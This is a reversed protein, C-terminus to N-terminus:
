EVNYKVIFFRNDLVYPINEYSTRLTMNKFSFYITNSEKSFLNPTTEKALNYHKKADPYTFLKKLQEKWWPEDLLHSRQQHYVAMVNLGMDLYNDGEFIQRFGLAPNYFIEPITKGTINKYDLQNQSCIIKFGDSFELIESRVNLLYALSEPNRLTDSLAEIVKDTEAQTPLDYGIGFLYTSSAISLDLTQAIAELTEKTPNVKGSEIRSISGAAAGIKTELELQSLGAQKRFNKIKEGVTLSRM